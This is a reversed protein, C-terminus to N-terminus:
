TIGNGGIGRRRLLLDGQTDRDGEQSYRLGLKVPKSPNTKAGFGFHKCCFRECDPSSRLKELVAEM